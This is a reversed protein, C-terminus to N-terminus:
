LAIIEETSVEIYASVAPRLQSQHKSTTQSYEDTNFYWQNNKYAYIPFHKGYSYVKYVGLGNNRAFTNNGMFEVRNEVEVRAEKNSVKKM